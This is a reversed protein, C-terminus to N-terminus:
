RGARPNAAITASALARECYARHLKECQAETQAREGGNWVVDDASQLRRWRPWQAAMIARVEADALSSRRATRGAQLEEPSDVVLVRDVRDLYGRTEFLLPIAIVAYPGRAQALRRDAEARIAPHLIAELRARAAPDAFVLARMAARDLGGKGTVFGAGFAERVAEMAGGGEATLERSIEDTDVVTAGLRQLVEAVFSKGAGIGGTLGIVLGARQASVRPLPGGM